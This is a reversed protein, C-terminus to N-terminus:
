RGAVAAARARDIARASAAVTFDDEFLDAIDVEVQYLDWVEQLFRVLGLSQGGLDFFDADGSTPTVGLITTWIRVVTEETATFREAAM